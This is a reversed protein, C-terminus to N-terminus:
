ILVLGSLVLQIRELKDQLDYFNFYIDYSYYDILTM